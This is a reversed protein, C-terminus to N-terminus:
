GASDEGSEDSAEEPGQPDAWFSRVRVQRDDRYWPSRWRLINATARSPTLFSILLLPFPGRPAHEFRRVIKKDLVDEAATWLLGGVPTTVLEVVGTDNRLHGNVSHTPHDGIHGVGAEGFPGFKWEFHYATTFITARLRSKWYGPEGIQVTAGKPDNQIWLYNTIAGMMPHGVYQDMAPNGDTWHNWDYGTDSDFWRQFWKGHTTEWRYWYGTYLNGGNLFANFVASSIILQHWHVRCERAHTRDTPCDKLAVREPSAPADAASWPGPLSPDFSVNAQLSSSEWAPSPLIEPADPIEPDQPSPSEPTASSLAPPSPLDAAVNQAQTRASMAIFILILLSYRLPRGFDDNVRM